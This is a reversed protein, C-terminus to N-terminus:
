PWFAGIGEEAGIRGAQRGAQRDLIIKKEM